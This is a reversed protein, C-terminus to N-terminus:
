STPSFSQAIILRSYDSSVKTSNPTWQFFLHYRHLASPRLDEIPKSPDNMWGQPPTMHMIPRQADYPPTTLPKWSDLAAVETENLNFSFIDLDEAQCTLALTPIPSFLTTVVVVNLTHTM